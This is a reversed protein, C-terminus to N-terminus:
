TAYLNMTNLQLEDLAELVKLELAKELGTAIEQYRFSAFLNLSWLLINDTKFNNKAFQKRTHCNKKQHDDNKKLTVGKWKDVAEDVLQTIHEKSTM